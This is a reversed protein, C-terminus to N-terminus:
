AGCGSEWPHRSTFPAVTPYDVRIGRVAAVTETIDLTIVAPTFIVACSLGLRKIPLIARQHDSTMIV